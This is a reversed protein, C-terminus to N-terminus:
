ARNISTFDGQRISRALQLMFIADREYSAAIVVAFPKLGGSVAAAATEAGQKRFHRCKGTRFLFEKATAIALAASSSQGAYGTNDLLGARQENQWGRANM